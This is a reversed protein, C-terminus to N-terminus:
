NKLRERVERLFRADEDEREGRPAEMLPSEPDARFPDSEDKMISLYKIYQVEDDTLSERGDQRLKLLIRGRIGRASEDGAADGDPAPRKEKRARYLRTKFSLARRHYIFFYLLGFFLGGLHGLHSVNTQGGFIELYLELLGYLVVLYKARIPLVFFLLIEANPYLVGFALLVGFVAGSAGITPVWYGMGKSIFNIVFITLGAGIGTFLYYALFKKGGWAQEIPIGFILLAYMNFFLHIITVDSHLFMYTAIQWLYGKEVVMAPILGLYYTLFSVPIQEGLSPASYVGRYGATFVQIIFVAVNLVILKFVLGQLYTRRADNM